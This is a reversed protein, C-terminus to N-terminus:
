GAARLPVVNRRPKAGTIIATLKAGLADFARAQEQPRRDRIYTRRVRSEIVHNLCEDIVDGSVGLGAILTGATRRLDHATWRGGPLMLSETNKSRGQMRKDAPRQRDALQKGFSKVHVPGTAATNPFVWPVLAQTGDDNTRVERLAALREFREIAFASLHITHARENKTTPLHWTRAAMDVIGVKVEAAEDSQALANADVGDGSWAAGMLEGVRAGTAPLVWIAAATRQNLGAAPIREALTAIEDVTLVRERETEKGGADRKTVTDLPNREVIERALAFRFMQKLDALLVNATRLKGEAKVTDLIALLDAKRVDAIARDGLAPFIYRDFQDTTYQGGDKRGIRKGDAGIRPQLEVSQWRGFLARVTIRRERELAAAQEREEAKRRAVEAARRANAEAQQQQARQQAFHERLDRIGSRYLASWERAKDRAQQVTFNVNGYGRADYTGILLRVQGASGAYRFYLRREGAPTIRGVLRGAGRAGSEILWKDNPGPRAQMARDSIIADAM